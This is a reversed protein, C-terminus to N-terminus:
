QSKKEPTIAYRKQMKLVLKVYRQTESYPPVGGYKDVAGAGANYAALTRVMDGKYRSKLLSLLRSGGLINQQPSFPDKVGYKRLNFPMLQMLGLAGKPSVANPNFASEVHIVARILSEDLQFSRAAEQVYDTYKGRFLKGVRTRSGSMSRYYSFKSKKATFVKARVGDPPPKSTFRVTGDREKYVYIPRAHAVTFFVLICPLLWAFARLYFVLPFRDTSQAM